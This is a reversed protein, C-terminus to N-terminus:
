EYRLSDAPQLRAAKYTHYMMSILTFLITLLLAVVYPVISFGVQYPFSHLWNRVIFYGAPWAVLNAVLILIVFERVFLVSIRSFDAGMAKRIGVENTRRSTTFAVLGYIGLCAIIIAIIALAMVTKGSGTASSLTGFDKALM